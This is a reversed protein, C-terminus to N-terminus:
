YLVQPWGLYGALMPGVQGCDDDIAQKGALVLEYNDREVVKAIIRAIMGSGLGIQEPSGEGVGDLKVWIARDAGMALATRLTEQIKSSVGISLAVVESAHGAERIKLAEEVAIEDFPNLSHKVNATEVGKGSAAIRIKIAYDIARKCPVLIRLSM